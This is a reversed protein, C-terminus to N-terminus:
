FDYDPEDDDRVRERTIARVVIGAAGSSLIAACSPPEGPAGARVHLERLREDAVAGLSRTIRRRYELPAVTHENYFLQEVTLQLCRYENHLIILPANLEILRRLRNNRNIVRRYLDNLDGLAAQGNALAELPRLGAPLILLVDVMLQAPALYRGLAALEADGDMAEADLGALAERLARGGIETAEVQSQLRGGADLTAAGNLVDDLQASTLQLLRAVGAKCLPHVVPAALEIHGFRQCRVVTPLIEVGCKECTVGRYTEGAYKRCICTYDEIPGFVRACFVGGREPKNTRYNITEPTQIEGHSRARLQTDTLLRARVTGAGIHVDMGLALLEPADIPALEQETM